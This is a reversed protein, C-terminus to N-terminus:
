IINVLGNYMYMCLTHVVVQNCICIHQIHMHTNHTHIYIDCIHTYLNFFFGRVWYEFTLRHKLVHTHIFICACCVCMCVRTIM